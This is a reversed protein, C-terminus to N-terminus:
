EAAVSTEITASIKELLPKLGCCGGKDGLHNSSLKRDHPCGGNCTAYWECPESTKKFSQLEIKASRLKESNALIENLSGRLLSGYEYEKHGVYKDCASVGGNAEITLYKGQCNGAFVCLNDGRGAVKDVLSNLSRIQLRDRYDTWWVEFLDMMFRVYDPWPIYTGVVTCSETDNEPLVNLIDMKTTGTSLFYDLLDRPPIAAIEADVVALLGYNVNNERFKELTKLIRESTGKGETDVRRTDNLTPPGDISVGVSIGHDRLFFMVDDPVDVANTQASNSITVGARLYRQQLWLAKRLFKTGLLTIEGGHWVFEVHRIGPALLADRISRALVTFSMVNGPGERWSHCYTCRLNCLRTGKMVLVMAAAQAPVPAVGIKEIEALTVLESARLIAEPPMQRLAMQPPMGGLILRGFTAKDDEDLESFMGKLTELVSGIEKRSFADPALDADVRSVARNSTQLEM